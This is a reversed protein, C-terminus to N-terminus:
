TRIEKYKKDIYKKAFYLPIQCVILVIFFIRNSTTEKKRYIDEVQTVFCIFNNDVINKKTQNKINCDFVKDIEIPNNRIFIKVSDCYLLISEDKTISSTLLLDYMKFELDSFERHIQNKKNWDIFPITIISIYLINLISYYFLRKAKLTM